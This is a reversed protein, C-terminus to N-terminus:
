VSTGNVVNAVLTDIYSQPYGHTYFSAILGANIMRGDPMQVMLNPQAQSFPGNPCTNNVAVVRGGLM